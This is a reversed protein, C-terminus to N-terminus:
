KLSVFGQCFFILLLDLVHLIIHNDTQFHLWNLFKQKKYPKLFSIAPKVFVCRYFYHTLYEFRKEVTLSSRPHLMIPLFLSRYKSYVRKSLEWELITLTQDDCKAAISTINNTKLALIFEKAEHPEQLNYYDFEFEYM